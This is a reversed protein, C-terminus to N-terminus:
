KTLLLKLTIAVRKKLKWLGEYWIRIKCYTQMNGKFGLYLAMKSWQITTDHESSHKINKNKASSSLTDMKLKCTAVGAAVYARIIVKKIYILPWKECSYFLNFFPEIKWLLGLSGIKGNWGARRSEVGLSDLLQM